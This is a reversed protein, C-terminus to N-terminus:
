YLYFSNTFKKIFLQPSLSESFEQTASVFYNFRMGNVGVCVIRVCMSAIAWLATAESSPHTGHIGFVVKV